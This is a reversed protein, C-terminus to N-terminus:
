ETSAIKGAQDRQQRQDPDETLCLPRHVQDQLEQGREDGGVGEVLERGM